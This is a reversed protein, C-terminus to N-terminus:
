PISCHCFSLGMARGTSVGGGTVGLPMGSSMRADFGLESMDNRCQLM